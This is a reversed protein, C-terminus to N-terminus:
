PQKEPEAVALGDRIHQARTRFLAAVLQCDTALQDCEDATTPPKFMLSCAVNAKAKNLLAFAEPTTM